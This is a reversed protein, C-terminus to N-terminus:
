ASQSNVSKELQVRRETLKSTFDHIGQLSPYANWISVLGKTDQAQGIAVLANSLQTQTDLVANTQAPQAPVNQASYKTADMQYYIDAAVGLAKMAVSLADTLAMKYCEDSVYLGTRQSEVESSGGTGPIAESWEGDVKVYLNINCYAKVEQGFTETWQKTVEYKWGIGCVGFTETMAKIRWMPNIDSKGKLRGAMIPKIATQPVVRLKNYIELNEM